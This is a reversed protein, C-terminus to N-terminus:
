RCKAHWGRLVDEGVACERFVQSVEWKWTKRHCTATSANCLNQRNNLFLNVFEWVQVLSYEGHKMMSDVYKTTLNVAKRTAAMLQETRMWPLFLNRDEKLCGECDM